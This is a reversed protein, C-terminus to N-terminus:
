LRGAAPSGFDYFAHHQERKRFQIGKGVMRKRDAIVIGHLVCHLTDSLGANKHREDHTWTCLAILNYGTVPAPVSGFQQFHLFDGGNDPVQVIILRDYEHHIGVDLTLVDQGGLSGLCILHLQLGYFALSGPM